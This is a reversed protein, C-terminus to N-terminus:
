NTKQRHKGNLLINDKPNIDPLPPNYISTRTNHLNDHEINETKSMWFGSIITDNSTSQSYYYPISM